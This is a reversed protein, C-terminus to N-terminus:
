GWTTSCRGRRRRTTTGTPRSTPITTAPGGGLIPGGPLKGLGYYINDRIFNRDIAHALAKRFRVDNFPAKRHNFELWMMTGMLEYGKTTMDLHPLAELRPIDYGEIWSWSTFHIRGEELALARSAADPLIHVWIADLYPLGPKWYDDNRVLKVYGGKKWEAFKFPGTGVPKQNWENKPYDTGEYLHKPLIPVSAVDFMSMFAPYPTKFEFVVTHDDKAYIREAEAFM